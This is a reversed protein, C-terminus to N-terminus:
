LDQLSELVRDSETEIPMFGGHTPSGECLKNRGSTTGTPTWGGTTKLWGHMICDFSTVDGGQDPQQSSFSYNVTVDESVVHKDADRGFGEMMWWQVIGGWCNSCNRRAGHTTKWSCVLFIKLTLMSTTGLTKFSKSRKKNECQMKLAPVGIFTKKQGTEVYEGDFEFSTFSPSMFYLSCILEVLWCEEPCLGAGKLVRWWIM